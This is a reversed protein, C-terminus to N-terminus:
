ANHKDYLEDMNIDIFKYKFTATPFVISQIKENLILNRSEAM